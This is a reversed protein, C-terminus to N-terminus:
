HPLHHWDIGLKLGGEYTAAVMAGPADVQAVVGATLTPEDDAALRMDMDIAQPYSVLSLAGPFDYRGEATALQLYPGPEGKFVIFDYAPFPSSEESREWCRSYARTRWAAIALLLSSAMNQKQM